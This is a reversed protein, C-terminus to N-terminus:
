VEYIMIICHNLLINLSWILLLDTKKEMEELLLAGLEIEDLIFGNKIYIQILSNKLFKSSKLIPLYIAM